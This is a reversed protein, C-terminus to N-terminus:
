EVTDSRNVLEFDENFLTTSRLRSTYILSLGDV